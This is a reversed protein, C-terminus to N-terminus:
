VQQISPPSELDSTGAVAFVMILAYFPVFFRDWDMVSPFLVAFAAFVPLSLLTIAGMGPEHGAAPLLVRLTTNTRFGTVTLLILFLPLSSVFLGGSSFVGGLADLLVELYVAISFPVAFSDIDIQSAVFTHYFLRWWQSDFALALVLYLVLALILGGAYWTRQRLQHVHSASFSHWTLFALLLSAFIINNPRVLVSACLLLVAPASRRLALLCFLAAIIVLASLNDPVAVRALDTVRAGVSFLIVLLVSYLPNIYRCLWAHLIMCILVAPIFSGATLATLPDIGALILVQLMFLYLPKIFYMDLQSLFSSPSSAMAAAYDGSTLASFQATDLAGALLEYTALHLTVPDDIRFSLAGALYPVTDWTYIPNALAFVALLIVYVGLITLALVRAALSSVKTM